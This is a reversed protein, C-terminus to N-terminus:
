YFGIGALSLGLTGPAALPLIMVTSPKESQPAAQYRYHLLWPLGYGAGFGILGGIVVDSAYHRDAVIRAVGTIVTGGLLLGCAGEDALDSGYIPLYRHHVCVLGAATAITLVHGSPFSANNGQGGCLADYSPNATCDSTDPRGRGTFHYLTNNILGSVANAELDMMLMQWMVRPERHVLLVVPLDIAYPYITGALSVRDSVTVASARTSTSGRLWDRVHDDFFNGGEWTAGNPPPLYYRVYWDAAWLAATAPYEWWRIRPWEPAWEVRERRVKGPKKQVGNSARPAADNLSSTKASPAGTAATTNTAGADVPNKADENAGADRENAGADDAHATTARLLLMFCAAALARARRLGQTATRASAPSNARAIMTPAGVDIQKDLPSRHAFEAALLDGM